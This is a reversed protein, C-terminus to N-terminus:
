VPEPFRWDDELQLQQRLQSSLLMHEGTFGNQQFSSRWSLSTM